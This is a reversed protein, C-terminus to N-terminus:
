NVNNLESGMSSSGSESTMASYPPPPDDVEPHVGMFTAKLLSPEPPARDAM